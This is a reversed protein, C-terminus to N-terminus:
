LYKCDFLEFDFGWIGLILTNDWPDKRYCAREINQCLLSKLYTVPKRLESPGKKHKSTFLRRHSSPPSDRPPHQPPELPSFCFSGLDPKENNEEEDSECESEPRTPDLAGWGAPSDPQYPRAPTKRSIKAVESFSLPLPPFMTASKPCPLPTM